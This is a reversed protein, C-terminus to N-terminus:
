KRPTTGSLLAAWVPHADNRRHCQAFQKPYKRIMREIRRRRRRAMM